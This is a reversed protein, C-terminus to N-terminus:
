AAALGLKAILERGELFPEAGSLHNQRCRIHFEERTDPRRRFIVEGSESVPHLLKFRKGPPVFVERIPEVVFDDLAAHPGEGIADTPKRSHDTIQGTLQPLL